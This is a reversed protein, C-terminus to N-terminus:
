TEPKAEPLDQLVSDLAALLREANAESFDLPPRIKIVNDHIGNTTVLVGARRLANVATRALAADPARSTRDSVLDVGLFFGKGRVDGSARHKEQLSQLGSKLTFSGFKIADIEQLKLLTKELFPDM